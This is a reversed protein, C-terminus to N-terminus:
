NFKYAYIKLDTKKGEFDDIDTIEHEEGNFLVKMNTNKINSRWNIEFIVNAKSSNGQAIFLEEGSLHRYYAWINEAGKMPFYGKIPINDEDVTSVYELITIKKDKRHKGM